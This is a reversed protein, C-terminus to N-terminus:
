SPAAEANPRNNITINCSIGDASILCYGDGYTTVGDIQVCPLSSSFHSDLGSMDVRFGCDEMLWLDLKCDVGDLDIRSPQADCTLVLSCAVGDCELTDFSGNLTVACDAGDLDLNGITVQDLILDLDAGDMELEQCVWDAPVTILIDKSPISGFTIGLVPQNTYDLHLTGGSVQYRVPHDRDAESISVTIQEQQASQLTVNGATWDLKLKSVESADFQHTTQTLEMRDTTSHVGLFTDANLGVVLIGLLLVIVISYLIIRILANTKM